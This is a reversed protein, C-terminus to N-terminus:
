ISEYLYLFKPCNKVLIKEIRSVRSDCLKPNVNVKKGQKKLLAEIYQKLSLYTKKLKPCNEGCNKGM